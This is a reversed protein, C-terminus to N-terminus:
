EFDIKLLPVVLVRAHEIQKRWKRKREFMIVVSHCLKNQQLGIVVSTDVVQHM